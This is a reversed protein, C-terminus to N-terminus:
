LTAMDIVFRYKVDSKLMRDYAENIKVMPIVEVDSTIGHEACYDLMEQTEPLGGVLSGVLRKRGGVLSFAHVAAAESPVGVLCMTGDRKLLALYANLDHNVSVTDLIFDFTGVGKAMEEPSTSLIVEDAGLRKADAAKGASTTFCVVHAGFSHAFKLAMHGLGGLGIVGVKQGPGVKWHRLPSWTTIGACLLPAVGAPDLKDSVRLVFREDVVIKDSYGGFNLATGDRTKSNYTWTCTQECYSELGEACSSCARCSDVICGIGVRDGPAFKTVASGVKQVTGIIEHGPVMPYLAGGWEDRSMHIDTHCVGCHSIALLVDHEGPERREFSFPAIPSSSSQAAYGKTSLM